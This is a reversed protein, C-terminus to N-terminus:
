RYKDYESQMDVSHLFRHAFAIKENKTHKTEGFARIWIQRIMDVSFSKGTVDLMANKIIKGFNSPQFPKENVTTFLYDGARKDMYKIYLNLVKRLDPPIEFEQRHYKSKTKYNLMVFKVVSGQQPNFRLYNYKTDLDKLPKNVNVLRMEPYDNRAILENKFYLCGIVYNMFKEHDYVGKQGSKNFKYADLKQIVTKLPVYQEKEKESMQNEGRAHETEKIGELMATQYQKVIAPDVELGKLLVVVAAFYDKFSLPSLTAKTKPSVYSKVADIVEEPDVILFNANGDFIHGTAAVSVTNIKSVYNKITIATKADDTKRVTMSSFLAPLDDIEPIERRRAVVAAPAPAPAPAEFQNENDYEVNSDDDEYEIVVEAPKPKVTAPVVPLHAVVQAGPTVKLKNRIRTLQSQLRQVDRRAGIEEESMEGRVLAYRQRAEERQKEISQIADDSTNIANVRAVTVGALTRVRQRTHARNERQRKMFLEENQAKQRSRVERMRIAAPTMSLVKAQHVSM